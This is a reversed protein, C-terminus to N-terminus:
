RYSTDPLRHFPPYLPLLGGAAAAGGRSGRRVDQQIQKAGRMPQSRFRGAASFAVIEEENM